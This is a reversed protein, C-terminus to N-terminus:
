SIAKWTAYRWAISWTANGSTADCFFLLMDEGPVMWFHQPIHFDVQGTPDEPVPLSVYRAQRSELDYCYWKAGCYEDKFASRILARHLLHDYDFFYIEFAQEPTLKLTQDKCQAYIAQPHPKDLSQWCLFLSTDVPTISAGTEDYFKPFDNAKKDGATDLSTADADSEWAETLTDGEGAISIKFGRAPDAKTTIIATAGAEDFSVSISGRLTLTDTKVFSVARAEESVWIGLVIIIAAPLTLRAVKFVRM